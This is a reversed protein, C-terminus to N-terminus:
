PVRLHTYHVSRIPSKNWSGYLQGGDAPQDERSMGVKRQGRYVFAKIAKPQASCYNHKHGVRLPSQIKAASRKLLRFSRKLSLLFEALLFPAQELCAANQTVEDEEWIPDLQLQAYLASKWNRRDPVLLPLYLYVLVKDTAM